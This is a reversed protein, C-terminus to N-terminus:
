EYVFYLRGTELSSTGATLDETGYTYAPAKANLKNDIETETYYRDDHTHDAPAKGSLSTNIASMKNDIESETYYRDDHTHGSQSKQALSTNIESVKEDVEAKNYSDTNETTIVATGDGTGWEVVAMVESIPCLKAYIRIAGEICEAKPFFGNEFTGKVIVSASHNATMGTIPIDTYFQGDETAYNPNNTWNDTVITIKILSSVQEMNLIGKTYKKFLNIYGEEGFNPDNCLIWCEDVEEYEGTTSPKLGNFIKFNEFSIVGNEVVFPSEQETILEYAGLSSNYRVLDYGLVNNVTNDAILWTIKTGIQITYASLTEDYVFNSEKLEQFVDRQEGFIDNKFDSLNTPTNELYKYDYKEISGDLTRFGKVGM